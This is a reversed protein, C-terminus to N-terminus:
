LSPPRILGEAHQQLHSGGVCVERVGGGGEKGRLVVLWSRTDTSGAWKKWVCVSVCRRFRLMFPRSVSHHPLRTLALFCCCCTSLLQLVSVSFAMQICSQVVAAWLTVSLRQLLDWHPKYPSSTPDLSLWVIFFCMKIPRNATSHTKEAGTTKMNM